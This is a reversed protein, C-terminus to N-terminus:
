RQSVAGYNREASNLTFLSERRSPRNIRRGVLQEVAGKLM